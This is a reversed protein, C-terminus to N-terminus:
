PVLRNIKCDFAIIALRIKIVDMIYDIISM